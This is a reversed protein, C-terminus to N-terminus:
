CGTTAGVSHDAAIGEDGLILATRSTFDDAVQRLTLNDGPSPSSASVPRALATDNVHGIFASGPQTPSNQNMLGIAVDRERRGDIITLMKDLDVAAKKQRYLAGGLADAFAKLEAKRQPDTAAAAYERLRKVEANGSSSSTRIRAALAFLDNEQNRRKIENDGDLDTTRLRNITIGLDADNALADNIAGNAHVVIASCASVAQIRGIEKLQTPAASAAPAPTPDVALLAVLPVLM